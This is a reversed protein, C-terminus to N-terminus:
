MRPDVTVLIYDIKGRNTMAVMSVGGDNTSTAAAAVGMCSLGGAAGAGACFGAADAFSCGSAVAFAAVAEEGVCGGASLEFGPSLAASGADAGCALGATAAFTAGM